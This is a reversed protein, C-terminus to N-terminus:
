ARESEQGVPEEARALMFVTRRGLLDGQTRHWATMVM